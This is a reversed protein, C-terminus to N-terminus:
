RVAIPPTIAISLTSSSRSTGQAPAAESRALARPRRGAEADHEAREHQRRGAHRQKRRRGREAEGADDARHDHEVGPDVDLARREVRQHGVEHGRAVARQRVRRDHELHADARDDEQHQSPDEAHARRKEDGGAGHQRDDGTGEGLGAARLRARASARAPPRPWTDNATRHRTTPSGRADIGPRRAIKMAVNRCCSVKWVNVVQNASCPVSRKPTRGSSTVM